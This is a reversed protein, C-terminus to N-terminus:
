QSRLFRPLELAINLSHQDTEKVHFSNNVLLENKLLAEKEKSVQLKIEYEKMRVEHEKMRAKHEKMRAEYEKMKAEYQKMEADHAKKMFKMKMSHSDEQRQRCAAYEDTFRRKKSRTTVASVPSTFSCTPPPSAVPTGPSTLPDSLPPVVPSHIPLTPSPSSIQILSPSVCTSPGSLSTCAAGSVSSAVSQILPSTNPVTSSTILNHSCYSSSYSPYTCVPTASSLAPARSKHHQDEMCVDMDLTPKEAENMPRSVFTEYVNDTMNFEPGMMSSAIILEESSYPPKPLPDAGTRQVNKRCNVAEQKVKRKIHEFSRKLQLISRQELLTNMNNFEVAINEWAVEKKGCIGPGTSKSQTIHEREKILKLLMIRQKEMLPAARDKNEM